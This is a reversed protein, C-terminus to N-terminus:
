RKLLMETEGDQRPRARVLDRGNLVESV